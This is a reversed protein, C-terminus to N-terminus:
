HPPLQTTTAMGHLVAAAHMMVHSLAPAVPSGTVLYSLTVVGNGILPGAMAAGRFEAFGAHYAVTVVLSAALATFAWRWRAGARQLEEAPRTGYVALVPVVSLLLVDALGYAVGDWALAWALAGGGPRSSGAQGVVSRALAFGVLAGGIAGSLWRRRWQVGFDIGEVRLWAAVLAGVVLVHGAIFLDRSLGLVGSLLGSSLLGAAAAVVPWFLPSRKM